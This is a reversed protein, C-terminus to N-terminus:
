KKQEYVDCLEEMSKSISVKHKEKDLLKQLDTTPAITMNLIPEIVAEFKSPHATAVVIYDKDKSYKHKTAFATATHPCIIENYEVYVRKIAEAIEGDSACFAKINGKFNAYSNLLYSLREFNSPNGVDM